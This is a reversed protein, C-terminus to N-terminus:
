MKRYFYEMQCLHRFGLKKYINFGMDSSQLTGVRYGLERADLLPQYTLAAGIGKGRVEPLTAVSYIGAAGGGLFLCSTAVPSGNLYGIYNRMPLGLGFGGWGEVILPEWVRPLGYGITFVHAWTRMSADDDVARIELGEVEAISNLHQLDVAMGPTDKSFGFGHSTLAARWDDSTLHPELWFTITDVKKETFYQISELLLAEDKPTPQNAAMLGNFWPHPVASQWRTFTGNEFYEASNSRSMHHYLDCMNARIATVLGGDSVDTHIQMAEGKLLLITQTFTLMM